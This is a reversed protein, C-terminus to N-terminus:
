HTARFVKSGTACRIAPGRPDKDGQPAEFAEAPSGQVGIEVPRYRRM